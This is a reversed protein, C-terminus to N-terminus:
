ENVYYHWKITEFDMVGIGNEKAEEIEKPLNEPKAFFQLTGLCPEPELPSTGIPCSNPGLSLLGDM